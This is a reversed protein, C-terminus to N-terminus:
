APTPTRSDSPASPPTAARMRERRAYGLAIGGIFVLIIVAELVLATSQSAGILITFSKLALVTAGLLLAIATIPAILTHWLRTDLRTRRFFVVVAASTLIYLLLLSLVAVGGGWTLLTLVPDQGTIAFPTVLCFTLVTQAISATYPANHRNTRSLWPSLVGTCGLSHFYRNIGNHFALIGALLSTALLFGMVDTTWSGLSASIPEFVVSTADGNQLAQLAVDQAKDTGYYSVIMWSVFAFFVSILAVSLFTARPVTRAPDKAEKAYIATSEFGVMSAIAFTLAVGPAGTFFASGSFSGLPDLGRPGGGTFLEYVAFVLLLSMEAVVLVALLKAGFEINLSGLLQVIVMTALSWAWWPLDISAYQQFLGRVVVGYLGYMGAQTAAYCLIALQSAGVGLPHGLGRTVYAYFAGADTVHRSMAIYGVAFFGIVVGVVLYASPVGGSNGLGLPVPLTGAIGTLPAQASLVFFLIGAVGIAGRRLDTRHGSASSQDSM